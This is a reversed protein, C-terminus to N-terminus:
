TEEHKSQPGLSPIFAPAQSEAVLGDVYSIFERSFREKDNQWWSHAGPLKMFVTIDYKIKGWIVEEIRGAKYEHYSFDYKNLFSFFIIAFRFKEDEPLTDYDLMGTRVIRSLEADSAILANADSNASVLNQTRTIKSELSNQKIQAGVYILSVVVAVSAVLESIASIANWDM